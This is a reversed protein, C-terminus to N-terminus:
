ARAPKAAPCRSVSTAKAHSTAWANPAAFALRPKQVVVVQQRERCPRKAIERSNLRRIRVAELQHHHVLELVGVLQLHVHDLAHRALAERAHAGNAVRLLLM